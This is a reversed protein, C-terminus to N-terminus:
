RLPLNFDPLALVPLTVMTTKLSELAWHAEESWAFAGRKLLQTLSAVMGGYNQVFLWYYGTLGLFGRVEKISTPTLWNLMAHVKEPNAEM